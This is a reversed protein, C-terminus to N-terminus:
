EDVSVEALFGLKGLNIGLIPTGQAGVMRAAALMTGDGGLAIIMDCQPALKGDKCISSPDVIPRSVGGNLWRGLAADVCFKLSKKQFYEILNGSVGRVIPKETNGVIGFIM